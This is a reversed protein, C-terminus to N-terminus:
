RKFSALIQVKSAGSKSRLYLPYSNSGAMGKGSGFEMGDGTAAASIIVTGKAVRVSWDSM